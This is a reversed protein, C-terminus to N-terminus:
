GSVPAPTKDPPAPRKPFTRPEAPLRKLIEEVARELQPDHGEIVARPDQEVEIDPAVGKGEIIWRGDASASAFEPVYVTGGDILPGHGSIGVVGGWTRTGILPGLGAARFMYAFIDGDSATSGNILAVMPGAILRNPYTEPDRDHRAYDLGLLKRRLREIIWQSIYGGGNFREDVVLGEKWTQPYFWKIFERAGNAGMDPIHLYGVRGHSLRDVLARNRTVWDDYILPAEDTRPVFRVTRANEGSPTASVTLAVPHGARNRLLRYPNDKGTLPEGDIALIFDGERVDVGIGRLPSRYRPEDNRGHFIKAIRYRGAARDLEFRAGPLAVKPRDPIDYDGGEVYAHGINLEAIMEGLLYNLDSRHGVAPLLRAYRDGIAKWDYGHMNPVYFFDRYRRWVEFFIQRWEAPPDVEIRMGSLDLTTPKGAKTALDYIAWTGGTRLLIKKGDASVAFGGLDSGKRFVADKRKELDFVHLEPEYAPGRGEFSAPVRMFVLYKATVALGRYNEFPVPVRSVRDALGDLDIRVPEPSAAEDGDKGAAGNKAAKDTDGAGAPVEEDSRPGFPDAADKRLALAYIGAQRDVAYNWEVQSHQPAFSHDALYYLYKGDPSWVPNWENFEPGTVRHVGSGGAKWLYISRFRTPDSLSFALWRSDPSWAYDTVQGNPEDAVRVVTGDAVTVVDIRGDVDSVAIRKGDPSWVPHLRRMTGGNTLRRAKGGDRGAPVIWLEDEGTADSLYAIWRGDPSWAADRDHAGSSRTLNRTPGHEAPVTVVDGRAIFLARKGKPGLEFDEIFKSGDVTHRRKWLGDDPVTVPVARDEGTRTDYVRLSGGYEYVIRGTAPDYGPWRVDWTTSHTLQATEGSQLDYRYLNLWGDRDSVFYIADGIWMPDRETRVTHAIRTSEFTELGFLFLDEAWGGQYRKWTRFDRDLPSYVVRKGDPSYATVGAQPMPLPAPLGGDLAVTYVRGTSGGGADRLSRFLVSRGDPTWDLVQNDSGWRPPLPGRAPYWTLQRPEGGEAPIVYVQEDGDYQGTFAIRSGDPSFRPFLEVGPHATLRVAVGGAAPVKWLDGAHCFVITEGSIDPFRLLQTRESATAPAALLGAVALIAVIASTGRHM